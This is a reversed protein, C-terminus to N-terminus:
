RKRCIPIALTACRAPAERGYLDRCPYPLIGPGSGQGAARAAGTRACFRRGHRSSSAVVIVVTRNLTFTGPASPPYPTQVPNLEPAYPPLQYVTLWSRANLLENM